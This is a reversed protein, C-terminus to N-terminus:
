YSLPVIFFLVFLAAIVTFIIFLRKLITTHNEMGIKMRLVYLIAMILPLLIILAILWFDATLGGYGINSFIFNLGYLLVVLYVIAAYVLGKSINELEM